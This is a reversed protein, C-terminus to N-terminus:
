WFNQARTGKFKEFCKQIIRFTYFRDCSLAKVCGNKITKFICYIYLLLRHSFPSILLVYNKHKFARSQSVPRMGNVVRNVAYLNGVSNQSTELIAITYLSSSLKPDDVTGPRRRM